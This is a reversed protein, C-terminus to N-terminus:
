HAAASTWRTRARKVACGARRDARRQCLCAGLSTVRGQVRGHSPARGKARDLDAGYAQAVALEVSVCARALSSTARPWGEVQWPARWPARCPAGGEDCDLPQGAGRPFGAGGGCARARGARTSRGSSEGRTRPAHASSM